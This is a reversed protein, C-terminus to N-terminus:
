KMKSNIKIKVEALLGLSILFDTQNIDGIQKINQLLKEKENENIRVSLRCDRPVTLEIKSFEKINFITDEDLKVLKNLSLLYDSTNLNLYEAKEDILKKHNSSLNMTINKDRKM